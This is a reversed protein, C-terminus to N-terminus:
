FPLDGFPDAESSTQQPEEKKDEANQQPVPDPTWKPLDSQPKNQYYHPTETNMPQPPRIGKVQGVISVNTVMTGDRSQWKRTQIEGEVLVYDGKLLKEASKSANGWCVVNHWETDKEWKQTDKNLHSKWTYVTLNAVQTNGVQKITVEKGLRGVLIVKNFM